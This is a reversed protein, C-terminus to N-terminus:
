AFRKRINHKISHGIREADEETLTSKKLMKDLLHLEQVKKEFAKRAIESWKIETHHKIEQHLKEPISFTMNPM